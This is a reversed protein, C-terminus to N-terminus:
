DIINKKILQREKKNRENIYSIYIKNSNKLKEINSNLNLYFIKEICKKSEINIVKVESQEYFFAKKVKTDDDLPIMNLINKNKFFSKQFFEIKINRMIKNIESGNYMELECMIFIDKVNLNNAKVHITEGLENESSTTCRWKKTFSKIKGFRKKYDIVFTTVITTVISTLIPIVIPKFEKVLKTCNYM